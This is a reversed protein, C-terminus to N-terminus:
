SPIAHQSMVIVAPNDVALVMPEMKQVIKLKAVFNGQADGVIERGARVKLVAKCYGAVNAATLVEVPAAFHLTGELMKGFGEIWVRTEPLDRERSSDRRLQRTAM